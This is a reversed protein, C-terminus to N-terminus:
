SGTLRRLWGPISSYAANLLVVPEAPLQAAAERIRALPTVGARVVLVQREVTEAALRGFSSSLLPPLDVVLVDCTAAVDSLVSRGLLDIVIRAAAGSTAGGSIIDVGRALPQVVEPLGAEGRVLECLGPWPKVDLERAFSQHELDLEVLVVRRGYDQAQVFAMAFALTTRGEGRIASTLGLSRLTPGGLQLSATRCADFLEPSISRPWHSQPDSVTTVPSARGLPTM